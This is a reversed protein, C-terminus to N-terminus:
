DSEKRRPNSSLLRGKTSQITTSVNGIGMIQLVSLM